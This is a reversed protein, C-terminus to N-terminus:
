NQFYKFMFLCDVGGLRLVHNQFLTNQERQMPFSHSGWTFSHLKVLLLSIYGSISMVNNTIYGNYQFMTTFLLWFLNVGYPETLLLLLM